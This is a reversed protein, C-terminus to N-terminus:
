LTRRELPPGLTRRILDVRNPVPLLYPPLEAVIARGDMGRALWQCDLVIGVLPPTRHCRFQRDMLKQKEHLHIASRQLSPIKELYM